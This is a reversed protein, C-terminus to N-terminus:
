TWGRAKLLIFRGVSPLRHVAFASSDLEKATKFTEGKKRFTLSWRGAAERDELQGPPCVDEGVVPLPTKFFPRIFTMLGLFRELERSSLEAELEAGDVELVKPLGEYFRLGRRQDRRSRSQVIGQQIGSCVSSDWTVGRAASQFGSSWISPTLSPLSCRLLSGLIPSGVLSM